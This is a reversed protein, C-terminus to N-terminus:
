RPCLFLILFALGYCHCLSLSLYDPFEFNINLVTIARRKIMHGDETWVPLQNMPVM